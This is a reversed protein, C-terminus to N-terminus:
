FSITQQDDLIELAKKASQVSNLTHIGKRETTKVFESIEDKNAARFYGGTVSSLIVKGANRETEVLKRLERPNKLGLRACLDKTSVANEKGIPLLDFILHM